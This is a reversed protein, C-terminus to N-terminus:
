YERNTMPESRRENHRLVADVALAPTFDATTVKSGFLSDDDIAVSFKTELEIVLEVCDLSDLGLQDASRHLVERGVPTPAETLRGIWDLVYAEVEERTAKEM